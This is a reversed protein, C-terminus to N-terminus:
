NSMVVEILTSMFNRWFPEYKDNGYAAYGKAKRIVNEKNPLFAHCIIPRRPATNLFAM